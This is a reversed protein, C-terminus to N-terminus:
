RTSRRARSPTRWGAPRRSPGCCCPRTASARPPSPRRARRASSAGGSGADRRPRRRRAARRAARGGLPEARARLPGRRARLCPGRGPGPVLQLRLEPDDLDRALTTLKCRASRTACSRSSTRRACGWRRRSRARSRGTRCAARTCRSRGSTSARARPTTAPPTSCSRRPSSTRTTTPSRCPSRTGSSCAAPLVLLDRLEPGPVDPAGAAAPAAPRGQARLRPHQVHVPVRLRGLRRRRAPPLRPRLAAARRARARAVEFDGRETHTILEAPPHFDRQSFPAHELLQGYRNRYRNPTEIEGPTFFTLWTQPATTWTSATRRGARSSSTTTSATACRASRRRSGARARRSSCSRTARATATSPRRSRSRSASGWRSTATSCSSRAAAHDPRGRARRRARRDAPPRAHRAGVGRARAAHVGGGRRDPVAVRPAAPDVRQRQLGRLRRGGRRAAPRGRRPGAHPAEAPGRGDPRLAHGGVPEGAADQEREIAEFLAKFNGEGFGRAGHREIIEFFITPRDGLPKTFIQLLYGEDDHDVLIGLRRLDALDEKM